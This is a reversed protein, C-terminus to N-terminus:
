DVASWTLRIKGEETRRVVFDQVKNAAVDTREITYGYYLSNSNLLYSEIKLESNNVKIGTYVQDKPQETKEFLDLNADPHQDYYKFGSTNSILYMTGKPDKVKGETVVDGTKEGNYLQSTRAYIHDHGQLVLDIGLEDIVPGLMPKVVEVIDKDKIHSSTSYLPKHLGVIKWKKDTAIMDRKLWEVQPKFMEQSEAMETNLMAFHVDNYDFSYVSNLPTAM